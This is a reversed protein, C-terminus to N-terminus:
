TPERLQSYCIVWQSGSSTIDMSLNDCNKDDNKFVVPTIVRKLATSCKKLNEWSREMTKM